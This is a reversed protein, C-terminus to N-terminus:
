AGAPSPVGEIAARLAFRAAAAVARPATADTTRQKCALATEMPDAAGAVTQMWCSRLVM